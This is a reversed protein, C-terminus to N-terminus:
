FDIMKAAEDFFAQFTEVDSHSTETAFFQGTRPCVMGMVNMRLHDGNKTVKPKSGKRDWRRRPRPDGEFGSEDAFWIDADPRKFLQELKQLFTERLQEDQKDPWPQPTKLRYGQKHFFRVVTEYSCQIQYTESIYGHFAKATWFSRQAQQPEDILQALQPAQQDKIITMRGPRKKVILGDVGCQNFRNIWKRLARNTVLLANCVLQRDAGALLMQIASCRTATENSGVRSVQKLEEITANERHPILLPRAM